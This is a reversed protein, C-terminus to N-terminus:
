KDDDYLFSSNRCMVAHLILTNHSIQAVLLGMLCQVETYILFSHRQRDKTISAEM